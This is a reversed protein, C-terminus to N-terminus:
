HKMRPRALLYGAMYYSFYLCKNFFFYILFMTCPVIVGWDGEFYASQSRMCNEWDGDAARDNKRSDWQLDSIKQREFTVKTQTFALLWLAGFRPQLPASDAPHNSTECFFEAPFIIYSCICQPSLAALWWSGMAAAKQIMWFTEASFHELKVYFKVCIWLQVRETVKLSIAVYYM